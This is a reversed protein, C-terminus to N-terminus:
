AGLEALAGLRAERLPGGDLARQRERSAAPAKDDVVGCHSIERQVVWCMRATLPM